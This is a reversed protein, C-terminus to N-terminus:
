LKNIRSSPATQGKLRAVEKEQLEIEQASTQILTELRKKEKHAFSIYSSRIKSGQAVLQSLRSQAM